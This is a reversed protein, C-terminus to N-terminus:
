SKSARNKVQEWKIRLTRASASMWGLLGHSVWGVWEKEAFQDPSRLTGGNGPSSLDGEDAVETLQCGHLQLMDNAVLVPDNTQYKKLHDLTATQQHYRGLIRAILVAGGGVVGVDDLMGVVPIFDPIFEVPWIVYAIMLGALAASTLWAMARDWDFAIWLLGLSGLFWAWAWRKASDIEQETGRKIKTELPESQWLKEYLWEGGRKIYGRHEIATQVEREMKKTDLLYTGGLSYLNLCVIILIVIRFPHKYSSPQWVNQPFEREASEVRYHIPPIAPPGLVQCIETESVQGRRVLETLCKMLEGLTVGHKRMLAPGDVGRIRIDDLIEHLNITRQM